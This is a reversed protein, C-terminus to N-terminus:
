AQCFEKYKQRSFELESQHSIHFNYFQSIAKGLAHGLRSRGEAGEEIRLDRPTEIQIADIGRNNHHQRTIFGGGFYADGSLSFRFTHSKVYM